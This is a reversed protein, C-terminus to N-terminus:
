DYAEEGIWDNKQLIVRAKARARSLVTRVNAPRMGLLRGLEEHTYGMIVKGVLVMWDQEPLTEKLQQVAMRAPFNVEKRDALANGYLANLVEDDDHLPLLTVNQKRRLMDIYATRVTIVIYYASKYCTLQRLVSINKMLRVVAEQALDDRDMATSTYASATHYIFNKNKEFFEQFFDRDAKSLPVINKPKRM